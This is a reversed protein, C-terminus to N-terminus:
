RSLVIGLDLHISQLNAKEMELDFITLPHNEAWDRDITLVLNNEEAEISIKSLDSDNRGRYFSIALRLLSTLRKIELTSDLSLWAFETFRFQQRSNRVMVALMRQVQKSFGDIDSNEVIYAGHQNHHSYSVSMGIEHLQSAWILLKQHIPDQLSWSERVQSLLLLALNEVRRSQNQDVDFYSALRRIGAFRVDEDHLRNILDYVVGERLAGDSIEIKKIGLEKLIVSLIIFGGIFVARRQESIHTLKKSQGCNLLWKEVVEISNLSIWDKKIGLHNGLNGIAKITGSTGVVEDWGLDCYRQVVTEVERQIFKEAQAIRSRSIVGDQFYKRTISVCGIYLSDMTVPTFSQGIILETSGGGIDIVLRNREAATLGFAAGLYVLRAEERGSIISIPHGLSQEACRLFEHSNKAARFTNTGVARIRHPPISKLRQQFRELCNFAREQSDKTLTGDPQLGAGLRIMERVKDVIRIDGRERELTIVMHFSNSGLDIAAVYNQQDNLDTQENM